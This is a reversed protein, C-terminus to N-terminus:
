YSFFMFGSFLFGGTIFWHPLMGFVPYLSSGYSIDLPFMPLTTVMLFIYALASSIALLVMGWFGLKFFRTPPLTEFVRPIQTVDAPTGPLKPPFPCATPEVGDSSKLVRKRKSM